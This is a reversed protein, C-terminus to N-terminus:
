RSKRFVSVLRYVCQNWWLSTGKANETSFTRWLQSVAAIARVDCYVVSNRTKKDKQWESWIDWPNWTEFTVRQGFELTASAWQTVFVVLSLCLAALAALFMMIVMILRYPCCTCGPKPTNLLEASLDGHRYIHHDCKWCSWQLLSSSLLSNLWRWIEGLQTSWAKTMSWGRRLVQLRTLITETCSTFIFIHPSRLYRDALQGRNCEFCELLVLLMTQSPSLTMWM